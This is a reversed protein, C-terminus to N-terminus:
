NTTSEHNQEKIKRKRTAAAVAALTFICGLGILINKVPLGKEAAPRNKSAPMEIDAASITWEARHGEGADIIIKLDTKKPIKFSFEGTENTMGSLLERGESDFVTIKGANVHRGGSFKSEVHIMDGEIWAFLNVRHATGPAPLIWALCIIFFLFFITKALNHKSFNPKM